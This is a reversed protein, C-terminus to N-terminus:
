EGENDDDIFVNHNKLYIKLSSLGEIIEYTYDDKFEAALVSKEIRDVLDVLDKFTM